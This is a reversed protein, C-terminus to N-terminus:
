IETYPNVHVMCHKVNEIEKEISEHINEAIKHAEILPMKGDASIEVDVYVKNGFKRTKVDDIRKVGDQKNIVEYIMNVTKEDCAEDTMKRITDIFIDVGAKIIFLSIIISAVSDLILYGFRAGLIGIFSGISSLADSRHHWADAMLAGSNIKKATNRTYWYMMEKTIISVVAAILAIIGPIEFNKYEGSAINKIGSIGIGAGTIILIVSLVISAVCEFREHGYPHTKDSKKNSIKVGIIVIITSFVDSLSHVADSVMASSKAFIGALLKLASLIVNIIISIKSVRIAEKEEM